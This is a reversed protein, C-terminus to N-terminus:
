HDKVLSLLVKEYADIVRDWTYTGKIRLVANKKLSQRLNEDNLILEMKYALDSPDKKYFLASDMAVERNFPVDLAFVCCGYGLAMLLGPNTGGVENGHIYAYSNIALEELHYPKYIGGLFKVNPNQTSKLKKVFPSDWNADGVIVLKKQTKIKNYAALTIDANNEPELRSAMLFYEEKKLGYEFLIEPHTSETKIYAGYPI